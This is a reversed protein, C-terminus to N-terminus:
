IDELFYEFLKDYDPIEDPIEIERKYYLNGLQFSYCPISKLENNKGVDIKKFIEEIRRDSDPHTGSNVRENILYIAGMGMLAGATINLIDGGNKINESLFKFAFDDAEIEDEKSSSDKWTHKFKAHGLEHLIITTVAYVFCNNTKLIDDEISIDYEEPNPLKKDWDLYNYRLEMGYEFLQSAIYLKNYISKEINKTDFVKKELGPKRITENFYIFHTYCQIWLYSLFTEHLFIKNNGDAYNFYIYPTNNEMNKFIAKKGLEFKIGPDIKNEKTFKELNVVSQSVEHLKSVINHQLVRIPQFGPHFKEGNYVNKIM